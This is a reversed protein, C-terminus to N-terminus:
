KAGKYDPHSPTRANLRAQRVATDKENQKKRLVRNLHDTLAEIAEQETMGTPLTLTLNMPFNM